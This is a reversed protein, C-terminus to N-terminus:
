DVYMQETLFCLEASRLVDFTTNKLPSTLCLTKLYPKEETQIALHIKMSSPNRNTLLCLCAWVCVCVCVCMRACVCVSAWVLEVSEMRLLPAAARIRMSPQARPGYECLM